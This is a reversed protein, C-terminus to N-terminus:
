GLMFIRVKGPGHVGTVLNGEIDTTKSPGTIMVTGSGVGDSHLKRLLDLLDPVLNRPEVVAVHIPPVLSLARGHAPTPRIVLSGTEAVGAYVDTIGCDCDFLADATTEDWRLVDFGAERLRRPLELLDLTKAVPLAVRRCDNDRLFEILSDALDEIRVTSVTMSAATAQKAFLEPLGIDTHVLRVVPEDLEPPVPPTTLRERRGLARRVHDIFAAADSM